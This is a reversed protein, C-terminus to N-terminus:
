SWEARPRSCEIDFWGVSAQLAKSDIKTLMIKSHDQYLHSINEMTVERTIARLKEYRESINTMERNLNMIIVM